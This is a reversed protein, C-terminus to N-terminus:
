SELTIIPFLAFSYSCTLEPSNLIAKGGRRIGEAAHPTM